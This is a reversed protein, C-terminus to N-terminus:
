AALAQHLRERLRSLRSRVTGIPVGLRAAAEAYNMQDIFIMEALRQNDASELALLQGIRLCLERSMNIRAPELDDAPYRFAEEQDFSEHLYSRDRRFHARMVNLAIGFLWTQPLSQGRFQAACQWAELLIIQILDEIDSPNKIRRAVFRALKTGHSAILTEINLTLQQM